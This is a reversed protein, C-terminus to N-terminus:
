FFNRWSGDSTTLPQRVVALLKNCQGDLKTYLAIPKFFGHVDTTSLLGVVTVQKDCEASQQTYMTSSVFFRTARTQRCCSPVTSAAFLCSPRSIALMARSSGGLRGPSSGKGRARGCAGRGCHAPFQSRFKFGLNAIIRLASGDCVSPCVSLCVSVSMTAYRSIYINCRASIFRRRRHHQSSKGDFFRRRDDAELNRTTKDDANM